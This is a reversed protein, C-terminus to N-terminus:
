QDVGLCQRDHRPRRLREAPLGEGALHAQLRTQTRASLRRALHEGDRPAVNFLHNAAVMGGAGPMNQVVVSPNGPIQKGIHRALLRTYADYGGGPATPAIVTVTKGRWFSDATQAPAATGFVLPGVVAVARILLPSIVSSTEWPETWHPPACREAGGCVDHRERTELYSFAGDLESLVPGTYPLQLPPM